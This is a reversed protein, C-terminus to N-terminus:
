DQEEAALEARSGVYATAHRLLVDDPVSTLRIIGPVKPLAFLLRNARRANTEKLAEIFREPDLSFPLEDIGLDDFRDDQEFVDDVNFKTVDVALRAEFRMGEALLVHWPIDDGLCARLAHATTLGYQLANRASPNASTLVSRRGLQATSLADVYAFSQGRALRPVLEGLREWARRSDAMISGMLHVLGPQRAEAPAETVLDLECVVLSPEPIISVMDVADGVSLPCIATAATVMADFTTPVLACSIGGCWLKATVSVVSCAEADGICVVLDDHTVGCHGLEGLLWSVTDMTCLKTDDPLTVRSVRFGVDVLAHTVTTELGEDLSSAGVLAARKPLGVTTRFMRPLEDLINSGLRVDVSRSSFNLLQRRVTVASWAGFTAGRM